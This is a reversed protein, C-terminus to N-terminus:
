GDGMPCPPARLVSSRVMAAPANWTIHRLAKHWKWANSSPPKWIMLRATIGVRLLMAFPIQLPAGPTILSKPLDFMEQFRRNSLVLRLNADYISLAQQILNLGARTMADRTRADM